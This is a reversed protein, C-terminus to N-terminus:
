TRKKENSSLCQLTDSHVSQLQIKQCLGIRLNTKKPSRQARTQTHIRSSPHSGPLASDEPSLPRGSGQKRGGQRLESESKDRMADTPPMQM